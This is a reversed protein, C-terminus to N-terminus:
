QPIDIFLKDFAIILKVGNPTVPRIKMKFSDSIGRRKSIATQSNVIIEYALESFKVEITNLEGDVNKFNNATFSLVEKKSQNSIKINGIIDGNQHIKFEYYEGNNAYFIIELRGRDSSGNDNENLDEDSTISNEIFIFDIILSFNTKNEDPIFLDEQCTIASTNECNVTVYFLEDSLNLEREVNDRLPEEDWPSDDFNTFTKEYHYGGNNDDPIPEETPEETVEETEEATPTKIAEIQDYVDFFSPISIAEGYLENLYNGLNYSELDTVRDDQASSTKIISQQTSILSIQTENLNAIETNRAVYEDDIKNARSNVHLFNLLTLSCIFIIVMIRQNANLYAKWKFYIGILLVILICSILVLKQFIWNGVQGPFAVFITVGMSLIVLISSVIIPIIQLFFKNQKFLLNSNGSM